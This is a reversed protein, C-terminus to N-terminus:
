LIRCDSKVIWGFTTTESAMKKKNDGHLFDLINISEKWLYQHDFFVVILSASFMKPWLELALNKGSVSKASDYLVSIHVMKPTFFVCSCILNKAFAWFLRNQLFKQAKEGLHVNKSFNRKMLKQGKLGELNM